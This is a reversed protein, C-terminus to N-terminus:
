RCLKLDINIISKVLNTSKAIRVVMTRSSESLINPDKCDSLYVYVRNESPSNIGHVVAICCPVGTEEAIIIIDGSEIGPNLSLMLPHQSSCRCPEACDRTISLWCNM